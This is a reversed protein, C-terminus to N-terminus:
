EYGRIRPFVNFPFGPKTMLSVVEDEPPSSHHLRVTIMSSIAVFFTTLVTTSIISSANLQSPVGSIIASILIILERGFLERLFEIMLFAMDAHIFDPAHGIYNLICCKNIPIPRHLLQKQDQDELQCHRRVSKKSFIGVQGM